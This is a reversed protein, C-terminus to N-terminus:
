RAAEAFWWINHKLAFQCGWSEPDASVVLYASPPLVSGRRVQGYSTSLAGIVDDLNYALVYRGGAAELNRQFEKQHDSQKGKPAKVEIGVYQGKIM